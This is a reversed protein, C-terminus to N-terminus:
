KKTFQINIKKFNVLDFFIKRYWFFYLIILILFFTLSFNEFAYGYTTYGCSIFILLIIKGYSFFRPFAGIAKVTAETRLVFFVFYALANAVFAGSAGMLPVLFFNLMVSVLLAILTVPLMLVTRREVSIGISSIESFILLLSPLIATIILFKLSKYDNPLIFIVFDSFFGFIFIIFPIIIGAYYIAHNTIKKIDVGEAVKKYVIPMWVTTFMSQLLMIIAAFNMGMSYVGIEEYNSYERLMIVSVSNLGWVAVSSFVLPWGYNLLKFFEEARFQEINLKCLESRALWAGIVMSFFAAGASYIILIFFDKKIGIFIFVLLLLIAFIKPAVLSIAYGRGDQTIRLILSFYRAAISFFIGLLTIPILGPHTIGYFIQDLNEVFLLFFVSIGILLFFAPAACSLLLKGRNKSEYYERFYAQDLGLTLIVLSFSIITQYISNRGITEVPFYWALLPLTLFGLLASLVPGVIFAIIKNKQM